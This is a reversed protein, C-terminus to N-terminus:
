AAVRLRGAMERVGLIKSMEGQDYYVLKALGRVSIGRGDRYCQTLEAFGAMHTDWGRL